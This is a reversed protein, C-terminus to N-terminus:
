TGQGLVKATLYRETWAQVQARHGKCAALIQGHDQAKNTRGTWAHNFSNRLKGLDNLFQFSGHQNDAAFHTVTTTCDPTHPRLVRRSLHPPTKERGM